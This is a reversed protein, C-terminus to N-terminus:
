RAPGWGPWQFRRRGDLERQIRRVADRRGQV